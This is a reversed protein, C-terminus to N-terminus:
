QHPMIEDDIFDLLQGQFLAPKFLRYNKPVKRLRDKKSTHKLAEPFFDGLHVARNASKEHYTMWAEKSIWPAFISFNPVDLAKAMHSAGGENGVYGNCQSLLALFERLSHGFVATHIAKKSTASVLQLLKDVEKIQSPIYNFLLNVKYNETILDIVQAMYELPYTKLEGSGLIGIMILPKTFNIGSNQLHNKAQEVEEQKLYIKPAVAHDKLDQILPQLLLLRNDMAMGLASPKNQSHEYVHSYIFKSYWKRYSIKIPAKAFWSILNSETKGYVDIVAAYEERQITKLFKLFLMKKQGFEKKFLIIRDINPNGDVVARTHVNIVYHVEAKSFHIKLHEAIVTSALVDGIMKQQIILFKKM